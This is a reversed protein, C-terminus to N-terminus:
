RLCRNAEGWGARECMVPLESFGQFIDREGALMLHQCGRLVKQTTPLKWAARYEARFAERVREDLSELM